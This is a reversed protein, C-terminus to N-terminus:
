KFWLKFLALFMKTFHQKSIQPYALNNEVDVESNLHKNSPSDQRPLPESSRSIARIWRM